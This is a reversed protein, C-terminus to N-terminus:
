EVARHVLGSMAGVLLASPTVQVELGRALGVAEPDVLALAPQPLVLHPARALEAFPRQRKPLLVKWLVHHADTGLLEPLSDVEDLRTQNADLGVLRGVVHM